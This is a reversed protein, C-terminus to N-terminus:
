GGMTREAETTQQARRERMIAEYAMQVMHFFTATGPTGSADPHLIRILKRYRKKVEDDTASRDLGLVKYPDFNPQQGIMSAFKGMDFGAFAGGTMQSQAMQMLQALTEPTIAGEIVQQAMRGMEEQLTEVMAQMSRQMAKRFPNMM